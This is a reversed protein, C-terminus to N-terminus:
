IRRSRLSIALDPVRYSTAAHKSGVRTTPDQPTGAFPRAWVVPHWTSSALLNTAATTLATLYTSIPSGNTEFASGILPVLFTRGRVRRGNVIDSSLWHIVGGANGAYAGSGTCTIQTPTPTVSWTGSLHGTTEEILDGSGPVTITLGSPLYAKIADFFTRLPAPDPQGAAPDTFFTSIGPAGPWNQWSVVYRHMTM